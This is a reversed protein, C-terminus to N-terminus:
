DSIFKVRLHMCYSLNKRLARAYATCSVATCHMIYKVVLSGEIEHYIPLACTQVGTVTLLSTHRRRSSFFFYFLFFFFVFVFCVFSWVFYM